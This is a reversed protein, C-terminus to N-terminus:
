TRRTNTNTSSLCKSDASLFQLYNALCNLTSAVQAIRLHNWISYYSDKAKLSPPCRMAGQLVEQTHQSQVYTFAPPLKRLAIDACVAM